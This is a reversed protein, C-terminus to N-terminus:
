MGYLAYWIVPLSAWSLITSLKWFVPRRMDRIQLERGRQIEWVLDPIRAAMMMLVALVLVFNYFYYLTALFTFIVGLALLNVKWLKKRYERLPRTFDESAVILETMEHRPFFGRVLFGILNSSLILLVLWAGVTILFQILM